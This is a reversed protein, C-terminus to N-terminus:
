FHSLFRKGYFLREENDDGRPRNGQRAAKPFAKQDGELCKLILKYFHFMQSCFLSNFVYKWFTKFCFAGIARLNSWNASNPGSRNTKGKTGTHTPGTQVLDASRLVV